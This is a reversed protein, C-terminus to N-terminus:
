FTALVEGFAKLFTEIEEETTLHSLSIRLTSLAKKRDKTVAYVPRSPSNLTCCASKTAVYIEREALREQVERAKIGTLSINLIYPSGE